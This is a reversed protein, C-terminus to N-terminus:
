LKAPLQITCINCIMQCDNCNYLHNFAAVSKKNTRCCHDTIRETAMLSLETLRYGKTTM